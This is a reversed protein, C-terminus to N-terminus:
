RKNSPMTQKRGTARKSISYLSFAQSKSEIIGGVEVGGHWM